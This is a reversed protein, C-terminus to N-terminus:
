RKPVRTSRRAPSKRAAAVAISKRAPTRSDARVTDEATVKAAAAGRKQPKDHTAILQKVAPYVMERWRRGSFIGYHGAGKVEFHRQQDAPIGTCLEHASRTQCRSNGSLTAKAAAPPRRVCM